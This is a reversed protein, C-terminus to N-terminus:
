GAEAEEEAHFGGLPMAAPPAPAALMPGTQAGDQMATMRLARMGRYQGLRALALLRRDATELRVEELQGIPLTLRSGPELRLAEDLPLSVRGLVAVLAAPVAMVMSEVQQRWAEQLAPPPGDGPIAAEFEPVPFSAPLGLFLRGTRGESGLSLAIDIQEFQFEGEDLLVSLLRADPVFRGRQWIVPGEPLAGGQKEAEQRRLGLLNDIFDALLAADTPTARRPVRAAPSLRGTTLMEVLAIFAGRDLALLGPAAEGTTDDGDDAEPAPPNLLILFGDPEVLDLLEAQGVERAGTLKASAHLGGGIAACARALAREFPHSRPDPLPAAAVSEVEYEPQVPKRVLKRRLVSQGQMPQESREM